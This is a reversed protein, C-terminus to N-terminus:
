LGFGTKRLTELMRERKLSQSECNENKRWTRRPANRRDDNFWKKMVAQVDNM